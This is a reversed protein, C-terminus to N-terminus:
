REGCDAGAWGAACDGDGRVVGGRVFTHPPAPAVGVGVVFTHTPAGACPDVPVVSASCSVSAGGATFRASASVESGVTAETLDVEVAVGSWRMGGGWSPGACPGPSSDGTHDCEDMTVSRLMAAGTVDDVAVASPARAVLTLPYARGAVPAPTLADVSAVCEVTAQAPAGCGGPTGAGYLWNVMKVNAHYPGIDMGPSAWDDRHDIDIEDDWSLEMDRRNFTHGNEDIIPDHADEPGHVCWDPVDITNFLEHDISVQGLRSKCQGNISKRFRLYGGGLAACEDDSFCRHFTLCTKSQWNSVARLISPHSAILPASGGEGTSVTDIM